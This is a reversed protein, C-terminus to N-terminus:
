RRSAGSEKSARARHLAEEKAGFVQGIRAFYAEAKDRTAWHRRGNRFARGLDIVDDTKALARLARRVTVHQSDNICQTDFVRGAIEISDM